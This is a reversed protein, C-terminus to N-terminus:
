PKIIGRLAKRFIMGREGAMHRSLDTAMSEKLKWGATGPKTM